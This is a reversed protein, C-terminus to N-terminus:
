LKKFASKIQEIIEKKEAMAIAPSVIILFDKETKEKPSLVSFILRKIKNRQVANKAVKKSIIIGFRSYPFQSQFIKILFFPWKIAKGNKKFMEQIPLRYKKALM